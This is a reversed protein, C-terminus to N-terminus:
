ADQEETEDRRGRRRGMAQRRASARETAAETAAATTDVGEGAQGLHEALARITPFRFLDTIAIVRGLKERLRAQVRVVLLSHGGLDFFNDQSGVEPRRLVDAWVEAIAQELGGAPPVYAAARGRATDPAPLAKRDTKGNPTRPLADLTVVHQPVMWEPLRARLAERLRTEADEEARELVVYGVLRKDGPVDERAMVVSERVGPQERLLAEIEGLEIRHGRVKVQHDLRGLFEVTGDARWRVLDGTRYLRQGPKRPHPVFREATLEARQWYGRVVGDGGILLEGPVGIPVPALARDVVCLETNAIPTGLTLPGDAQVQATTSWITTETPGYMNLLRGGVTAALDRALAGAMAEGGVMLCDLQALAERGGPQAILMEAFSPTCQMHTVRHRAIQAPVSWDGTPEASEAPHPNARRLVEALMPLMGLVDREPVGFDVLCAIEDVDLAKVRELMAVCTDPTGLLASTDFYRHFAHDLLAEMDAATFSADRLDQGRDKALGGILDLATRLYERFPHFVTRKVQELDEGVFTHMMLSVTGRGPHGAEDWAQRYIRIKEQVQDLTQGLLHTLLHCGMRGATRYTDPSGAATIWVPLEARVPRPLTRIEHAKGAGGMRSIAEGRWLKRVTEIERFLVERREAYNHPQFIFDRDHWGSAFALGVRGHSLVDVVSWDEAVRVPDHLPLVVSGSRLQVRQTLAALAASVTAPSPYTGGFGHFHREPVWVASFGNADAFKASELLMHYPDAGEAVEATGWYFLGLDIPRTSTGTRATIRPEEGQVVVTFGRALTWCLELVSIDFSVSTVALWVGPTTGIREDMGAFFNVVNRHEVMVGKPRGTSGSTFIVYALQEPAVTPLPAAPATAIRPWDRDVCVLTAGQAPVQGLLREQTVIVPCGSDEIMFGLRERPYSPDLPVYAAGAKHIAILGVMLDLSRELCLGVLTERGVGLTRLHRALQTAREDLERYTLARDEFIVATADPTRRAQAEFTGHVTDSAVAVQTANWEVLLQREETATLMPLAHVPRDPERTGAELLRVFHGALREAADADFLDTNYELHGTMGHEGAVLSLTVDFKAGGIDVDLQSMALGAPRYTAPPTNQLILMVQFLPSRSLDRPLQLAEIVRDFPLDQHAFAGLATERARQVLARFTPAGHLPVRLALTNVFFGILGETAPDARGATPSGIVVDDQGAQRGLLAALAALYVMFPSAGTEAGLRRVEDTVAAPIPFRLTAGRFAALAPRPRTTPFESTAPAGALATAWYQQQSRLADGAVWAEQWAAVDAFQVPLPALPDPEGAAFASYLRALEDYLVGRSWGDSVIHHMVLLLVHEEPALQLLEARFLPGTALDFPQAAEHAVHARLAREDAMPVPRLVVPEAARIEAHPAGDVAPFVTRLAEHRQLVTGVARELAGRDLRGVLRIAAYLNYAASAPDMQHLLWLRQQAFSPVVPAGVPRPVLPPRTSAPRGKASQVASALREVTAHEFVASVALEVGFTARLRAVLRMALLSHGGLDFFDDLAGVQPVGLLEQMLSAIVREDETRPAVYDAVLLARDVPLAAVGARDLKGNPTRPLSPVAHVAAPVMYDPLSAAVFRRLARPELTRGPQAAVFAILSLDGAADTMARVAAEKVDPHSALRAEIEELEVRHGRVKVQTDARGLFELVGDLRRRVRDGTRYLRSGALPGDQAVAFRERTAAELGVYGFGLTPGAVVLEGPEGAAAARGAEDLVLLELGPLAQGIPVIGDGVATPVRWTAVIGCTETQGYMNVVASRAGLEDRWARVLAAPLPESATLMLRLAHDLLARRDGADADRLAQVCSALYSPVLDAVTIGRTRVLALLARADAIAERGAIVLTAGTTLPLVWQRVSSSFAFSATHLYRDDPTLGIQDGLAQAYTALAEHGISVGKPRGTSGSTYIVYAAGPLRRADGAARAGPVLRDGQVLAAPRGIEAVQPLGAADALVLAVGADRLTFAVREPPYRVDVPVYAGGAELIALLAVVADVSRDMALGVLAGDGVGALRLDAALREVAGVLAGYALSRGADEIAIRAPAEAAVARIRALVPVSATGPELLTIADSVPSPPM